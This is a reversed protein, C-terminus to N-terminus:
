KLMM